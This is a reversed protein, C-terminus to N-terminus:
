RTQWSRVWLSIPSRSGDYNKHMKFHRVGSTGSSKGLMHDLRNGGFMCVIRAPWASPLWSAAECIALRIASTAESGVVADMM